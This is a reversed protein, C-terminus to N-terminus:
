KAYNDEPNEEEFWNDIATPIDLYFSFKKALDKEKDIYIELTIYIGTPLADPLYQTESLAANIWNTNQLDKEEEDNYPFKNLNETSDWKDSLLFTYNKYYRAKVRFSKVNDCLPASNKIEKEEPYSLPILNTNYYANKNKFYKDVIEKFKLYPSKQQFYLINKYLFYKIRHLGTDFPTIEAKNYYVFEWLSNKDKDPKILYSFDPYTKNAFGYGSEETNSAEERALFDFIMERSIEEVPVNTDESLKQLFDEMVKRQKNEWEPYTNTVKSLFHIYLNNVMNHIHIYNRSIKYNRLLSSYTSIITIVVISFILSALLVEILTFAYKSQKKM